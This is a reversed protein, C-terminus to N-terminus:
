SFYYIVSLFTKYFQDWIILIFSTSSWFWTEIKEIKKETFNVGFHASNPRIPGFQASIPRFPGFHASDSIRLIENELKLPQQIWSPLLQLSFYFICPTKLIPM